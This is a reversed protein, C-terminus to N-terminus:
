GDDSGSGSVLEVVENSFGVDNEGGVDKVPNVLDNRGAGVDTL